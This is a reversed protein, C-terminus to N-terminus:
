KILIMKKTQTFDGATVKYYYVGSPYNSADWDADYTGPILEENILAAIERGQVDYITLKVLGFRAIRFEFNTIPNFPNPYNQSLSFEKPIENSVPQIGVLESLPRRYVSGNGKAGTGVFIYSGIICLENLFDSPLGTSWQVWNVGNNTTVYVGPGISPIAAFVNGGNVAFSYIQFNLNARVWNTGNNSSKYVGSDRTGAFVYSGNSCVSYTPLNLSTQSWNVGNNTSLHVGNVAAFINNGNVAFDHVTQAIVFTQNWNAGNNTSLYIGNYTGALVNNGSASLAWVSQNNLPTQSWNTGSNTSRYIGNPAFATGAFVYSGNATLSYINQNNFSTQIWSVGFNSSLYVGSNFPNLTGAFIYTGNEAFSEVEKNGLGSAMQIWQSNVVATFILFFFATLFKFSKM